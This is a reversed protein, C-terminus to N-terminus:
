KKIATLDAQEALLRWDCVGKGLATVGEAINMVANAIVLVEQAFDLPAWFVAGVSGMFGIAASTMGVIAPLLTRLREYKKQDGNALREAVKDWYQTEIMALNFIATVGSAVMAGGILLGGGSSILSVGLVSSLAALVTSAIKKLTSWVDSEQARRSAQELKELSAAHTRQMNQETRHLNQMHLELYNAGTQDLRELNDLLRLDSRQPRALEPKSITFSRPRALSPGISSDLHVPNVPRARPALPNPTGAPLTTPSIRVTHAM